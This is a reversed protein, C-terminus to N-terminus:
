PVRFRELLPCFFKLRFGPVKHVADARQFHFIERVEYFCLIVGADFCRVPIHFDIDFDAKCGSDDYEYQNGINNVYKDYMGNILFTRNYAGQISQAQFPFLQKPM